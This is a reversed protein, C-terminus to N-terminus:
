FTKKFYLLNKKYKMNNQLSSRGEHKYVAVVVFVRDTEFDTDKSAYLFLLFGHLEKQQPGMTHIGGEGIQVKYRM